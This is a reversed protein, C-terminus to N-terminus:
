GDHKESFWREAAARVMERLDTHPLALMTLERMAREITEEAVHRATTHSASGSGAGDDDRVFTGRGQSMAIVHEAELQRYARLITNPNVSLEHALHKATPLQEGSSLVGIAMARKVQEVIQHYVPVGSSADISFMVPM